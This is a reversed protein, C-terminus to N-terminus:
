DDHGEAYRALDGGVATAAAILKHAAVYQYHTGCKRCSHSAGAFFDSTNGTRGEDGCKPCFTPWEGCKPCFTPWENCLYIV